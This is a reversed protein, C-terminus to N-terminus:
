GNIFVFVILFIVVRM